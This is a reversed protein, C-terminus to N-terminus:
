SLSRGRFERPTDPMSQSKMELWNEEPRLLSALSNLPSQLWATHLVLPSSTPVNKAPSGSRMEDNDHPWPVFAM